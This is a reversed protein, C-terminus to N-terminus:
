DDDGGDSGGGPKKKWEGCMGSVLVVPSEAIATGHKRFNPRFRLCRGRDDDTPKFHKCNGCQNQDDPM